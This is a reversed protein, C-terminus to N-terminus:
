VGDEGHLLVRARRTQQAVSASVAAQVQTLISDRAKDISGSLEKEVRARVRADFLQERGPLRDPLRRAFAPVDIRSLWARLPKGGVAVAAALAGTTIPIFGFHADIAITVAFALALLAAGIVQEFPLDLSSASFRFVAPDIAEGLSLQIDRSIDFAAHLRDLERDLDPKVEDRWWGNIEDVFFDTGEKSALWEATRLEIERRVERGTRFAGDKWRGLVPEVFRDFIVVALAAALRDRLPDFREDMLAPLRERTLERVAKAFREVGERRRSWRALGRSVMHSPEPDRLVPTDGPGHAFVRQAIEETFPMRSAGGALLVRGYGSGRRAIAEKLATLAATYIGEWSLGSLAQPDLGLEPTPNLPRDYAAHRYRAFREGTVDLTLSRRKGGEFFTQLPAGSVAEQDDTPADIFYQEKTRRAYYLWLDRYHPNLELFRRADSRDALAGELVQRDFFSAGLDLGADFLPSAKLEPAILSMDLTSSGIDIVLINERRAELTLPSNPNEIAQLLAARSEPVVSVEAQGMPTGALSKRLLEAYARADDEASWSSPCGVAVSCGAWGEPPAPTFAVEELMTRFFDAVDRSAEGLDRPRTKFAARLTADGSAQAKSAERIARGGVVLQETGDRKVRALATPQISQGQVELNAPSAFRESERGSALAIATDAHGLDFGLHHNAM